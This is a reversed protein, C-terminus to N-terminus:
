APSCRRFIAQAGDALSATIQAASQEERVLGVGQGAWMSLAEVDGELRDVPTLCCYRPLDGEPGTAIIEGEGPRSGSAPRGAAEWGASTTNRLTRHPADPWGIDYLTETYITDRTEAALIRRRYHPHVPVETASLYRTGCWVGAAGLAFAAAVGRGDAIGGAAIVPTAGAADVVAPVLAMTSITGRVHGGAEWGQAVIVDVGWDIAQRAEEVSGVSHLVIAGARHAPEVFRSCDGWFFSLIRVGAELLQPVLEDPPWHLIMNAGFPRTALRKARRVEDMADETPMGGLALMGLGGTNSVAAALEATAAGGIPAQIIPLEVGALDLFTRNPWHVTRM